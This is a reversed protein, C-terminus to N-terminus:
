KPLTNFVDLAEVTLKQFEIKPVGGRSNYVVDSTASASVALAAAIASPTMLNAITDPVINLTYGSGDFTPIEPAIVGSGAVLITATVTYDGANAGSLLTGEDIITKSGVIEDALTLTTIGTVDTGSIIGKLETTSALITAGYDTVTEPTVTATLAAPTITLGGNTISIAYNSLSTNTGAVAALVDAYTGAHLSAGSGSATIADTGKLGAVTYTNTQTTNTFVNATTAGALTLAAKAIVAASATTPVVALAYNANNLSVGSVSGTQSGANPSTFTFSGTAATTAQDAALVGNLAITGTGTSLADYTKGIMAATATITLPTITLSGNVYSISYNSALTSGLQTAVLTDLVTGDAVNTATAYGALSFDDAGVLAGSTLTAGTNTQLTGNYVATNAAGSYVLAEPAVDITYGSGNTAPTM